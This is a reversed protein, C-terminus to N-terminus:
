TVTGEPLAPELLFEDVLGILIEAEPDPDVGIGGWLPHHLNFDGVVIHDGALELARKLLDLTETPDEPQPRHYVNHIYLTNQEQEQEVGQKLQLTQFDPSWEKVTWSCKDIRENVFFCVRASEGTPYALHFRDRVPHHTTPTFPNIWPEQIALVDYGWTNPDRLLPAM